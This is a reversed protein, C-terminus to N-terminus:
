LIDGFVNSLCVRGDLLIGDQEAEGVWLCVSLGTFHSGTKDDIFSSFM